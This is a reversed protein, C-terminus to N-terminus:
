RPEKGRRLELGGERVDQYVIIDLRFSITYPRRVVLETQKSNWIRQAFNVNLLPDLTGYSQILIEPVFITINTGSKSTRLVTSREGSLRTPFQTLIM